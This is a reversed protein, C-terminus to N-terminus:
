AKQPAFRDVAWGAALRCASALLAVPLEGEPLGIAALAAAFGLGHLLGFIFAVLWPRRITLSSEGRWIRAIEPGLFLISLAIAANLPEVPAHAYGLTAVALTISHAVTFSTVIKVISRFRGGMLVVGLLFALHDYGTFIHMVGMRSFAAISALTHGSEAVSTEYPQGKQFVFQDTRGAATIAGVDVVCLVENKRVHQGELM